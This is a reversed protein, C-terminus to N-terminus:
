PAPKIKDDLNVWLQDDRLEVRYQILDTSQLGPYIGEVIYSGDPLYKAGTCPDEFRSTVPQWGYRCHTGLTPTTGDYARWQGQYSVLWVFVPTGDTANLSHPIPHTIDFDSVLAVQHWDGRPEFMRALVWFASLGLLILTLVFLYGTLERLTLSPSNKEVLM